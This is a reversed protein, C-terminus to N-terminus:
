SSVFKYLSMPIVPIVLLLHNILVIETDRNNLISIFWVSHTKQPFTSLSLGRLGYFGVHIHTHTHTHAQTQTHTRTHRHTHAHMRSHTHTHTHRHTPAHTRAHTHTHALAHTLTHTHRNDTQTHTHAHTRTLSHTNDTQTHASLLVGASRHLPFRILLLSKRGCVWPDSLNGSSWVGKGENVGRLM